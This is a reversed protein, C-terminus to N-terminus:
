KMLGLIMLKCKQSHFIKALEGILEAETRCQSMKGDFAVKCPYDNAHHIELLVFESKKDRIIFTSKNATPDGASSAYLGFYLGDFFEAQSFLVSYPLREPLSLSEPWLNIM